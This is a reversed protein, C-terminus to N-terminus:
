EEDDEEEEEDDTIVINEFIWESDFWMLDHLETRDMGNPYMEELLAMFEDGKGEEEIRDATAVAGSWATRRIDEFDMEERITM